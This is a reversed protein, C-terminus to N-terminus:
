GRMVTFIIFLTLTTFFGVMMELTPDVPAPSINM